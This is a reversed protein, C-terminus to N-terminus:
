EKVDVSTLEMRGPGDPAARGPDVLAPRALGGLTLRHAGHGNLVGRHRCRALDGERVDDDVDLPRGGARAPVVRGREVGEDGGLRQEGLGIQRGVDGLLDARAPVPGGIVEGRDNLLVQGLILELLHEAVEAPGLLDGARGERDLPEDDRGLDLLLRGLVRLLREGEDRIVGRAGVDAERDARQARALRPARQAGAGEVRVVLYPLACVEDRVEDFREDVHTLYDILEENTALVPGPTLEDYDYYFNRWDKYEDLDYAFFAMPRGFLSYEFVLSSYDSICVDACSLLVDIPLSGDDLFAFDQCDDPIPTPHKVFPHHKVVLVYEDGIAHMLARVDLVDPGTANSVHGRFTPAYLIVKKGEAQPFAHELRTRAGALFADDFFLTRTGDPIILLFSM